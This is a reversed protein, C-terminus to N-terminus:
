MCIGQNSSPTELTVQSSTIPTTIPNPPQGITPCTYTTTPTPGAAAPTTAVLTSLLVLLTGAAATTTLPTTIKMNHINHTCILYNHSTAPTNRLQPPRVTYGQIVVRVYPNAEQMLTEILLHSLPIYRRSVSSFSQIEIPGLVNRNIFHNEM